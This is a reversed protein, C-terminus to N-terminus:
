RGIVTALRKNKTHILDPGLATTKKFMYIYMYLFLTIKSFASGSM